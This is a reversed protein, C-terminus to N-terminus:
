PLRVLFIRAFLYYIAASSGAATAFAWLLSRMLPPTETVLVVEMAVILAFVFIMSAAWFPILGVLLLTYAFIMVGATLVRAAAMSGFIAFFDGWSGARSRWAGVGLMAGLAALVAGLIMPVLGPITSPHINRQELRPMTYSLYFIVLGVVVLIVATILDAKARVGQERTEIHM